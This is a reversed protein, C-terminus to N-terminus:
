RNEMKALLRRLDPNPSVTMLSRILMTAEDADPPQLFNPRTTLAESPFASPDTPSPTDEPTLRPGLDAQPPAGSPAPLGGAAATTLGTQPSHSVNLDTRNSYSKGPTGQRAGGKGVRPM